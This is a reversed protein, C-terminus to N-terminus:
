QLYLSLSLGVPTSLVDYGKALCMFVDVKSKFCGRSLKGVAKGPCVGCFGARNIVASVQSSFLTQSVCGM